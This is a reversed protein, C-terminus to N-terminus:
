SSPQLATSRESLHDTGRTTITGGTSIEIQGSAAPTATVSVDGSVSHVRCFNGNHAGVTVTGSTAVADFSQDIREAEITGTETVAVLTYATEARLSGSNSVFSVAHLPGHTHLDASNSALRISSTTGPLRVDVTLNGTTRANKPEPIDLTFSPIGAAHPTETFETNTVADALPGHDDPTSVTVVAHPLAPDATVTITGDPIYLYAWTPGPTTATFRTTSM